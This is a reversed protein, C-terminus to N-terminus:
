CRRDVSGSLIKATSIAQGAHRTCHEAAHFILGLTTSPLGARGVKKPALLEERSTAQLQELARDISAYADAAVERLSQAPHGSEGEARAATKQAGSLMEGRAYTLLRDLAGGMHRVHFGVSAAGGPRQWVHEAPVSGVLGEVDERAQLLAHVAPMLLPEFGEVPGRLWVEPQPPM